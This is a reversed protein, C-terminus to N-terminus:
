PRRRQNVLVAAVMGAVALAAVVLIAVRAGTSLGGAEDPATTEPTPSPEATAGQGSAPSAQASPTVAADPTPSVSTEPGEPDGVVTFAIEGDLPHGDEAVVRYALTWAGPALADPVDATVATGAVVPELDIRTDGQSLALRSGIELLAGTFEVTVTSPSSGESGDAPDSSAFATHAWAPSAIALGLAAFLLAALAAFARSTRLMHGDDRMGCVATVSGDGSM